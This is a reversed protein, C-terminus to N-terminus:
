LNFEMLYDDMVYGNGIDFVAEGYVKYNQSEYFQRAVNNKNVTLIIRNDGVSQTHKKVLNLGRKGAGKEKAEPVLYIRHLKTTNFEVHHEFGVFGLPTEDDFILFYHYNLNQLHFIIEHESYMKELMYELQEKSLIDAYADEWSRRALDQILCIDFQTAPKTQIMNLIFFPGFGM